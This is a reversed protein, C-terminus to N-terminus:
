RVENILRVFEKYIYEFQNEFSSEHWFRSNDTIKHIKIYNIGGIWNNSPINSNRILLQIKEKEDSQKYPYLIILEYENNTDLITIISRWDERGTISNNGKKIIENNQLKYFLLNLFVDRKLNLLKLNDTDNPINIFENLKFKELILHHKILLKKFESILFQTGSNATEYHKLLINNYIDNWTFIKYEKSEFPNPFKTILIVKKETYEKYFEILSKQYQVLQGIRPYDDVKCEIVCVIKSKEDEIFIDYRDSYNSSYVQVNIIPDIFKLKFLENLVNKRFENDSNLIGSLIISTYDENQEKVSSKSWNQLEVFWNM